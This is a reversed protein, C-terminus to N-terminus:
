EPSSDDDESNHETIDNEEDIRKMSPKPKPVRYTRKLKPETLDKPKAEVPEPEVLAVEPEVLAPEPEVTKVSKKLKKTKPVQQTRKPEKLEESKNSSTNDDELKKVIEVDKSEGRLQKILSKGKEIAKKSKYKGNDFVIDNKSLNGKTKKALGQFVEERNGYTKVKVEVSETM